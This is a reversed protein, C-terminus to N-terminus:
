IEIQSTRHMVNAHSGGIADTADIPLLKLLLMGEHNLKLMCMEIFFFSFFVMREMEVTKRANQKFDQVASFFTKSWLSNDVM